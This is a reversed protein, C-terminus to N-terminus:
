FLESSTFVLTTYERRHKVAKFINTLFSQKVTVDGDYCNGVIM